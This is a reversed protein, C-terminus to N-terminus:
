ASSSSPAMVRSHSKTPESGVPITKVIAGSNPDIAAIANGLDGGASGPVSAYIFGDAKNYTIDNTPLPLYTTFTQAPLPTTAGPTSVQISAQTFGSILSAPVVATIQYSYGFTTALPIDNWKVVSDKTFGSGRLTIATDPSGAPASDPSLSLTATPAVVTITAVNSQVVPSGPNSVVIQISGSAAFFSPALSATINTGSQSSVPLLTGNAQVTANPAFGSGYIILSAPVNTTPNPALSSPNMGTITPTSAAIALETPTSTSGGPGPNYVSIEGTDFSKVDNATLTVQLTTSNVFTTPRASGNYLVVSNAEFGSGSVTIMADVGQPISRPSVGSVAPTPSMISFKAVASSGGGPSPNTLVFEAVQGAALVAAPITAQLSTASVYNMPVSAGNLTVTTANIYGAGTFTVTLAPSGAPVNAPSIANVTPVPNNAPSIPATTKPGSSSSGSCGTLVFSLSTFVLFFSSRRVTGGCFHVLGRAVCFSAYDERRSFKAMLKSQRLTGM